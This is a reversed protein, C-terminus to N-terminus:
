WFNIHNSYAQEFGIESYEPKLWKDVTVKEVCPFHNFYSLSGHGIDM